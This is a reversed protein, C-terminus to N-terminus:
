ERRRRLRRGEHVWSEVRIMGIQRGVCERGIVASLTRRWSAAWGHGGHACMVARADGLRHVM